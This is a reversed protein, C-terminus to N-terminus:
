AAFYRPFKEKLLERTAEIQKRKKWHQGSTDRWLEFDIRKVIERLKYGYNCEEWLEQLTELAFIAREYKGLAVLSLIGDKQHVLINDLNMKHGTTTTAENNSPVVLGSFGVFIPKKLM